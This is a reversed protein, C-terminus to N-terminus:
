RLYGYKECHERVQQLLALKKSKTSYQAVVPMHRYCWKFIKLKLVFVPTKM